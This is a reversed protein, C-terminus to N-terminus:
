GCAKPLARFLPSEAASKRGPIGASPFTSGPTRGARIPELIRKREINPVSPAVPAPTLPRRRVDRHTPQPPHSRHHPAHQAHRPAAAPDGLPSLYVMRLGPIQPSGSGRAVDAFDPEAPGRADKQTQASVHSPVILAVCVLLTKFLSM